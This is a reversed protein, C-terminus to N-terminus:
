ADMTVNVASPSEITDSSVRSPKPVVPKRRWVRKPDMRRIAEGQSEEEEVGGEEEETDPGEGCEWSREDDEKDGGGYRCSPSSAASGFVADADVVVRFEDGV